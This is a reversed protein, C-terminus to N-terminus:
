DRRRATPRAHAAGLDLAVAALWTATWGNVPDLTLAERDGVLDAVLWVVCWLVTV